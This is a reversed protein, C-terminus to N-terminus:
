ECIVELIRPKNDFAYTVQVLTTRVTLYNKLHLIIPSATLWYNSRMPSLKCFRQKAYAEVLGRAKEESDAM